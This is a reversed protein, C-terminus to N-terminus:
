RTSRAKRLAVADFYPHNREDLCHLKTVLKSWGNSQRDYENRIFDDTVNKEFAAKPFGLIDAM